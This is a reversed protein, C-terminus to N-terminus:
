VAFAEKAQGGEGTRQRASRQRHCPARTSEVRLLLCGRSARGVSPWHRAQPATDGGFPPFSSPIRTTQTNPPLLNRSTSAETISALCLVEFSGVAATVLVLCHQIRTGGISAEPDETELEPLPQNQPHAEASQSTQEALSPRSSPRSSTSQTAASGRTSSKRGQSPAIRLCPHPRLLPRM